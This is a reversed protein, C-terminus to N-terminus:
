HTETLAHDKESSKGRLDNSSRQIRSPWRGHRM